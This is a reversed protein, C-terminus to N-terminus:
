FSVGNDPLPVDVPIMFTAVHVLGGVTYAVANYLGKGVGVVVNEKSEYHEKPVTIAETWGGLFNKVGFALKSVTKDSYTSETTWPSAAFASTSVILFAALLAVVSMKRKM